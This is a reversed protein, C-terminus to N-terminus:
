RVWRPALAVEDRTVLAPRPLGRQDPETAAWAASVFDADIRALDTWGRMRSPVAVVRLGTGDAEALWRRLPASALLTLADCGDTPEVVTVAQAPGRDPDQLAEHEAVRSRLEREVRQAAARGAGELHAAACRWAEEVDLPRQGAAAAEADLRALLDPWLPVPDAEGPVAGALGLGVDLAGGLVSARVWGPGPHLAGGRPLALPRLCGHLAELTVASHARLWSRLRPRSDPDDSRRDGLVGAAAAASVRRAGRPGTLLLGDTSPVLDVDDLVCVELLAQRVRLRQDAAAAGPASGQPAGTTAPRHPDHLV